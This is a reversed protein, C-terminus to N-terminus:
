KKKIGLTFLKTIMKNIFNEPMETVEIEKIDKITDLGRFYELSSKGITQWTLIEDKSAGHSVLVDFLEDEFRFVYAIDQYDLKPTIKYIM